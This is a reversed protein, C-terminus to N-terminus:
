KSSLEKKYWDCCWALSESLGRYTFNLLRQLKTNDYRPALRALRATEPTILPDSGTVFSRAQELRALTKLLGPTLRFRPAPKDLRQAVESLFAKYPVSGASVIYREGENAMAHLRFVVDAVDRVDVYNLFGDTYFRSNSWVYGFIRSSSRSADSRGLIVSPNITVTSLGEEQGRFVELEAAHKSEAYASRVGNKLWQATEDVVGAGSKGLAAVSSVHVLRNVGNKLCADVVNATGQVNVDFLERRFRKRFRVQAAAHIVATAGQFAATLSEPELVNGEAIERCPNPSLQGSSRVMCRVPVGAEAFRDAIHSGLLGTAGTIVVM